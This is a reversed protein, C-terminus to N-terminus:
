TSSKGNQFPKKPSPSSNNKTLTKAASGPESPDVGTDSRHGRVGITRLLEGTPTFYMMQGHDRDVLWLNDDADVRITHPFAFLGAGWSHLYNGDRDFVVVPHDPARNFCYM